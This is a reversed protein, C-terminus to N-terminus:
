PKRLKHYLKIADEIAGFILAFIIFQGVLCTFIILLTGILRLWSSTFFDFFEIM